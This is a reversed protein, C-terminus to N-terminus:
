EGHFKEQASGRSEDSPIKKTLELTVPAPTPNNERDTIELLEVRLQIPLPDAVISKKRATNRPIEPLKRWIGSMIQDDM